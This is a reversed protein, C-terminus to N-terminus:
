YIIFWYILIFLKNLKSSKCTQKNGWFNMSLSTYVDIETFFHPRRLAAGIRGWFRIIIIIVIDIAVLVFVVVGSHHQIDVVEGREVIIQIPEAKSDKVWANFTEKLKRNRKEM